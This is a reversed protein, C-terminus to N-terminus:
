IDQVTDANSDARKNTTVTYPAVSKEVATVVLGGLLPPMLWSSLPNLLSTSIPDRIISLTTNKEEEKVNSLLTHRNVRSGWKFLLM